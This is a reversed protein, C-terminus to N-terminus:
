HGLAWADILRRAISYPASLPVTGSLIEERTFWRAEILEEADITVELDDTETLFGLMLQHPFPWAQSGFWRIARARVGTEEFVERAVAEEASEGPEVFGALATFFASSRARNHRALLCRDGNSVVTIVVPDTRPFARVGCTEGTCVRSHGGEESRRQSGDYM